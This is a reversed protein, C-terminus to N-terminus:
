KSGHSGSIECAICSKVPLFYATLLIAVQRKFSSILQMSITQSSTFQVLIIEQSFTGTEPKWTNPSIIIVIISVGFMTLIIIVVVVPTALWHRIVNQIVLTQDGASAFPEEELMQTWFLEPGGLRRGLPNQTGKGPPFTRSPRSV